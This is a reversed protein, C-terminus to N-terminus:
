KNIKEFKFEIAIDWILITTSLSCMNLLQHQNFYKQRFFYKIELVLLRGPYKKLLVAYFFLILLCIIFLLIPFFAIWLLYFKFNFSDLQLYTECSCPLPLWSVVPMIPMSWKARLLTSLQLM